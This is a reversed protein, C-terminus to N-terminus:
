EFLWRVRIWGSYGTFKKRLAVDADFTLLMGFGMLFSLSGGVDVGARAPTAGRDTCAPGGASFRSTLQLIPRRIDNVYYAHLEPYVDPDSVEIIKIGYFGQTGTVRNGSITLNALPSGTEAYAHQRLRAYRFGAIPTFQLTSIPIIAGVRAQGNTQVGYFKGNATQNIFPMNRITRYNNYAVGAFADFFLGCYDLSGYILPEISYFSISNGFNVNTGQGPKIVTNAAAIGIGLKGYCRISTDAVLAAGATTAQYGRLGDVNSQKATGAFFIPGYSGQGGGIDGASYGKEVMDVGLRIQDLRNSIHDLILQDLSITHVILGQDVSPLLSELASEFAAISPLNFVAQILSNLNANPPNTGIVDLANAVCALLPNSNTSAFGARLRVIGAPLVSPDVSFFIPMVTTNPDYTLTGPATTLVDFFDGPHIGGFGSPLSVQILGTVSASGGVINLRSYNTTSIIEPMFTNGSTAYNGTLNRITLAGSTPLYHTGTNNLNATVNIGQTFFGPNNFTTATLTGGTATFTGNNTLTTATFNGGSTSTTGNNTFTAVSLNGGSRTLTGGSDVTFTNGAITSTINGVTENVTAGSRIRFTTFQTIDGGAGDNLTGSQVDIHFIDTVATSLTFSGGVGTVVNFQNEVTATGSFGGNAGGNLISGNGANLIYIFNPDASGNAVANTITGNNNITVLATGTVGLPTNIAPSAGNAIITAGANNNITATFNCPNTAASGFIIAQRTAVLPNATITGFNDFVHPQLASGLTRIGNITGSNTIRFASYNAVAPTNTTMIAWIQDDNVNTEISAGLNNNITVFDNPFNTNTVIASRHSVTQDVTGVIRNFNDISTRGEAILTNANAATAQFVANNTLTDPPGGVLTRGVAPCADPPNVYNVAYSKACCFILLIFFYFNLLKVNKIKFLKKM